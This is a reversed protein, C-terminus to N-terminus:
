RNKVKCRRRTERNAYRGDPHRWKGDRDRYIANNQLREPPKGEPWWEPAKLSPEIRGHRTEAGRDEKM